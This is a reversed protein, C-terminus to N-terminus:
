APPPEINRREVIRHNEFRMYEVRGDSHVTVFESGNDFVIGGNAGPVVRTHYFPVCRRYAEVALAFEIGELPENDVSILKM